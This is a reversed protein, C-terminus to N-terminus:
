GILMKTVSHTLLATVHDPEDPPFLSTADKACEGTSNSCYKLHLLAVM